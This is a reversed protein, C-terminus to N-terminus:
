PRAPELPTPPLMARVRAREASGQRDALVRLTFAGYIKGDKQYMWDSIKEVPATVESGFKLDALDAPDNALTGRVAVGSHSLVDIWIHEVGGHASTLAAKIRYASVGPAHADFKKWFIPLTARAQAIAANVTPDDARVRAIKDKATCAAAVSCALVAALIAARRTV